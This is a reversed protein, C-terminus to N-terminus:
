NTPFLNNVAEQIEEESLWTDIAENEENANEELGQWPTDINIEEESAGPDIENLEEWTPPNIVEAEPLLEEVPVPQVIQITWTVENGSTDYVQYALEGVINTSFNALNGQFSHIQAGNHTIYGDWIWSADDGFLLIVSQSGDDNQTVKVKNELLYPATRDLDVWWLTIKVSRSDSYWKDDRIIAKLVYEGDAISEPISIDTIDNVQKPKDYTKSSLEIDNLYLKMDTITFPSDTQHRLTFTRTLSQGQVPQMLNMSIEWLEAIEAREECEWAIGTVTFYRGTASSYSAAWWSRWRTLIDDQDYKSPMISEPRIYRAVWLSDEPTFESPAWNCLTDIQLQSVHDDYETPLSHIYGLSKKMFTLPTSVTALKWSIQSVDVQKVEREEMTEQVIYKSNNLKWVFSKWVPSNLWWGYADYRLASGDTNWWRHILVKSPTYTALRGDRPLKEEGKVVNTTGSKTAFSINWPATFNNRWDEPFNEKDSLTKWILYSVGAPIVQEQLKVEKKYLISADSGRVELVPNIEAPKWMASLHAYSNAMEMMPTEAAGLSLAYGYHDRDLILNTQGLDNLFKKMATEGWANMFMKIAPINRSGALAKAVSTLWRFEGDSNEPENEGVKLKIDYIPSDMTLAMNMYGLSYVFPKITSWPQRLARVMDVQWDIDDNNYDKSGVYALIDGNLSDLYVLWANSANYSAYHSVNEEISLEALKQIDYDLTTKITLWWTRLVEQDYNKELEEIVWFVFHPAKIQISNRSFDYDLGDILSQKLEVEDIYWEEYMRALVFDKRWIEYTVTYKKGAITEKTSLLGRLFSIFQEDDRKNSFSTESIVKQARSIAEQQTSDSIEVPTEIDEDITPDTLKLEWMLLWRNTYPDYRSPAQPIGALIAGQLVSLEKASKGFYTQAAIEIGYSNNWLFIYNAYLELIKEKMKKEVEKKSLDQYSASIDDRVYWVLKIALIIEKLKRTIKKEPTLLINKIVQQTITSGGHTKGTRLDTLWARITGKWDVWPNDRYRQDETAVIANVFNWSIDEFPIYDRNEEYLKYLVVDNRDTIVTTQNFDADEIESIDPLPKIVNAYMWIGGVIVPLWLFVAALWFRIWFRSSDNKHKKPWSRKGVVGSSYWPIKSVQRSSRKGFMKRRQKKRQKILSM